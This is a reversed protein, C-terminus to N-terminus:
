SLWRLLLLKQISAAAAALNAHLNCHHKFRMGGSAQSALRMKLVKPV